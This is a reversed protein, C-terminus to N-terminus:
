TRQDQFADWVKAQTEITCGCDAMLFLLDEAIAAAKKAPTDPPGAPAAM